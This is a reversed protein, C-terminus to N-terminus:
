VDPRAEARADRARLVARLYALDHWRVAGSSSLAASMAVAAVLLRWPLALEHVFWVCGAALLCALAV